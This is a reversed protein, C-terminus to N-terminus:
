IFHTKPILKLSLDIHDIFSSKLMREEIAGKLVLFVCHGLM